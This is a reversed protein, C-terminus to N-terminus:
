YGNFYCINDYDVDNSDDRMKEARNDSYFSDKSKKM